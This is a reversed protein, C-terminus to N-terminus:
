PDGAVRPRAFSRLFARAKRGDGQIVVDADALKQEGFVVARLTAADTAIVADPALAPGRAVALVGSRLAISFREDGLRLEFHAALDGAREPVFTSELALMLADAGLEGSPRHRSRAGFRGLERLIPHLERGWDTLEYLAGGTSRRAVIGAAELEGLRQTLVNPSAGLAARLDTFRKAGFL